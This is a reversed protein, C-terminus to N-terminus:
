AREARVCACACMWVSAITRDAYVGCPVRYVARPVILSRCVVCQDRMLRNFARTDLFLPELVVSEGLRNRKKVRLKPAAGPLTISLGATAKEEKDAKDPKDAKASSSSASRHHDKHVHAHSAAHKAATGREEYWAAISTPCFIGFHLLQQKVYHQEKSTRAARKFPDKLSPESLARHFAVYDSASMLRLCTPPVDGAAGGAASTGTNVATGAASPPIAVSLASFSASSPLSRSSSRSSGGAGSPLPSPSPSPSPSASPTTDAPGTVPVAAAAGAAPFPIDYTAFENFILSFVEEVTKLLKRKEKDADASGGGSGSGSEKKDKGAASSSSTSRTSPSSASSSKWLPRLLAASARIRALKARVGETTTAAAARGLATTLSLSSLTLAQLTAASLDSLGSSCAPLSLTAILWPLLAFLGTRQLARERLAAATQVVAFTSVHSACATFVVSALAAFSEVAEDRV